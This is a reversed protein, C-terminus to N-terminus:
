QRTDPSEKKIWGLQHLNPPSIKLNAGESLNFIGKSTTTCSGQSCHTHCMPTTICSAPEQLFQHAGQSSMQRWTKLSHCLSSLSKLPPSPSKLSLEASRQPRIGETLGPPEHHLLPYEADRHGWMLALKKAAWGSEAQSFLLLCLWKPLLEARTKCMQCEGTKTGEKETWVMRTITAIGYFTRYM